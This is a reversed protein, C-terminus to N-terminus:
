DATIRYVLRRRPTEAFVAEVKGNPHNLQRGSRQLTVDEPLFLSFTVSKGALGMRVSNENMTISTEERGDFVLMPYDVRLAEVGDKYIKDEVMVGSSDITISQAVGDYFVRLRVREPTEELVLVKHLADQSEALTQWEGNVRWSPGVALHVDQGSFKPAVGDSPGLQPHGDKLHIRLIGTPNYNQDGSTDYQLYNGGANAYVKHFAPTEFAFGGVEAPCPQEEIDDNAVQYAQALMSTATLNYCTHATYKEYGHKAEIPYRNKVVYGSGDPRIWNRISALSLRAARKFIGAELAMGAEAYASAYIEFVTVQQAENWIHHSSRYGTPLEGFPSQIFLSTMAGRWLFDRYTTHLFSDYGRQLIGTLFYRPFLDYALPEGGDLYMGFPTFYQTRMTLTYDVYWPDGYGHRTRAFEGATHVLNWNSTPEDRYARYFKKHQDIPIPERYKKYATKPNIRQLDKSWAAKREEPAIGDFAEYAAVIPATYFGGHNEAAQNSALDSLSADLAKMGSEVLAPDIPYNAQALVAVSHAYCPTAYFKEIGEVPDIIRGDADQYKQMVKVQGAILELYDKKTLGTPTITEGSKGGQNALFRNIQDYLPHERATLPTQRKAAPPLMQTEPPLAARIDEPTIVGSQVLQYVEGAASLFLGTGYEQTTKPHSPRPAADVPQVWGMMGNPHISAVLADWGRVIVPLYTEEDLIGERVGWGFGAVFFATGSSEPMAYEWRDGLNARWFGDDEQRSAIAVAMRQYLELYREYYPDNQPYHRLLRALGSFVWGSGRSWLVKKGNKTELGIYGPDRYFLSDEEDFITGTITWFADNLWDLYKKEGTAKYLMAFTSASFLGDAYVRGMYGVQPAHGYWVKGVAPANPEGTHLGEITPNIKKPDPDLLYLELWTIPAFLRNFGSDETGIQWEHKEAWALAQNLYAEEGTSHYADIVGAYWTGRIWDRDTERWPNELSYANVREMIGLIEEPHFIGEPQENRACGLPILAISLICITKIIPNM